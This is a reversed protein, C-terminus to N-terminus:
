QISRFSRPRNHSRGIYPRRRKRCKSAPAAPAAWHSTQGDPSRSLIIAARAQFISKKGRKIAPIRASGSAPARVTSPASPRDPRIANPQHRRQRLASKGRVTRSSRIPSPLAAETAGSSQCHCRQPKGATETANKFDDATTPRRSATAPPMPKTEGDCSQRRAAFVPQTGAKAPM